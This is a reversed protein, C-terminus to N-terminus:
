NQVLSRELFIYQERSKLTPVQIIQQTFRKKKLSHELTKGKKGRMSCEKAQYCREKRKVKKRAM